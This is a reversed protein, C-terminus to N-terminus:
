RENIFKFKKDINNNFHMLKCKFKFYVRFAVCNTADNSQENLEESEKQAKPERQEAEVAADGRCRASMLLFRFANTNVNATFNYIYFAVPFVMKTNVFLSCGSIEPENAPENAATQM